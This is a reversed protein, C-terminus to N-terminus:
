SQFWLSTNLSINIVKIEKLNVLITPFGISTIILVNESYKLTKFPEPYTPLVFLATLTMMSIKERLCTNHKSRCVHGGRHWPTTIFESSARSLSLNILRTEKGSSPSISGWQGTLKKEMMRILHTDWFSYTNSFLILFFVISSRSCPFWLIHSM